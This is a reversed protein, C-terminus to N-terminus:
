MIILIKLLNLNMSLSIERTNKLILEKESNTLNTHSLTEKDTQYLLNVLNNNSMLRSAIKQLNEGIERCNRVVM